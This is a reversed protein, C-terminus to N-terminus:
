TQGPMPIVGMQQLMGLQDWSLWLEVLQGKALRFVDVGSIAVKKGTPPIGLMEGKHTGKATWRVVVKDGEAIIDDITYRLDPVAARFTVFSKKFGERNPPFGPMPNHDVFNSTVLEDAVVQHGENIVEELLRRVVAKNEALSM